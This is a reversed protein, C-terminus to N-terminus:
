AKAKLYDIDVLYQSLRVPSNCRNEDILRNLSYSLTNKKGPELLQNLHQNDLISERHAKLAIFNNNTGSVQKPIM